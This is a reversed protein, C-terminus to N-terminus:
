PQVCRGVCAGDRDISICKCPDLAHFLSLPDQPDGISNHSNRPVDGKM